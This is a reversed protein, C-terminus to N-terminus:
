GVGYIREVTACRAEPTLAPGTPRLPGPAGEGLGEAGLEIALTRM